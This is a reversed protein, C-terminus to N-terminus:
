FKLSRVDLLTVRICKGPRLEIETPAELPIPKQKQLCLVHSFVPRARVLLLRLHRYHQKRTELIGKAFNLRHPYKELRLLLQRANSDRM